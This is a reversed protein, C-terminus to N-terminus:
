KFGFKTYVWGFFMLVAGFIIMISLLVYFNNELVGLLGRPSDVKDKLSDRPVLVFESVSTTSIYADNINSMNDYDYRICKVLRYTNNLDQYICIDHGGSITMDRYDLNIEDVALSSSIFCFSLFVVIFVKFYDMM